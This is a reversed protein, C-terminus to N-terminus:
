LAEDSAQTRDRADTASVPHDRVLVKLNKVPLLQDAKFLSPQTTSYPVLNELAVQRIQPNGHAIFGV